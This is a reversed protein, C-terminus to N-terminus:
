MNMKYLLKELDKMVVPGQLKITPNIIAYREDHGLELHVGYNVGHALTIKVATQGDAKARGTLSNKAMSTRDTWPRNVKMYGELRSAETQAFMLLAVQFKVLMKEMNKIIISMDFNDRAM